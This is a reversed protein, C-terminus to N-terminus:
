KASAGGDIFINHGTIYSGAESALLLIAGIVDEPKGWRKLATIDELFKRKEKNEWSDKMLPTKMPGCSICNVTINPSYQAAEVALAKTFMIVAGKSSCYATRNELVCAGFLSATNIIRGWQKKTMNPIVRRSLAMQSSLNLDMIYQWQEDKMKGIEALLGTGANNILIDIEGVESEIKDVLKDSERWNSHDYEYIFIKADKYKESLEKKVLELDEYKRSTIVVTAGAAILGEAMAKGLGRSAGTVLAIKNKCSFLENIEM